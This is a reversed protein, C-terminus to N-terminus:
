WEVVEFEVFHAAAGDAGATHDDVRDMVVDLDGEVVSSFACTTCDLRYTPM